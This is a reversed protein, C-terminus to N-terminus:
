IESDSEQSTIKGSKNLHDNWRKIEEKTFPIYGEPEDDTDNEKWSFYGYINLGMLIIALAVQPYVNMYISYIMLLLNGIFWAYWSSMLKNSNLYYGLPIFFTGIWGILEILITKTLM